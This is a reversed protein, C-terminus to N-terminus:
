SPDTGFIDKYSKGFDDGYLESYQRRFKEYCQVALSHKGAKLLTQCKLIMADEDMEDFVFITNCIDIVLDPQKIADITRAYSWLFDIIRNSVEAKFPDVGEFSIDKLLPGSRVLQIIRDVRTGAATSKSKIIVLYEFYDLYLVEPNFLFKWYKAEHTLQCGDIEELLRRLRIMNVAMTNKASQESRGPWILDHLASDAVGKGDGFSNLLISLYLRTLIPTFSKTVEVGNRNFVRFGGFLLIANQHKEEMQNLLRMRSELSKKDRNIGGDTTKRIKKIYLMILWVCAVFTLFIAILKLFNKVPRDGGKEAEIPAPPFKLTYVSVHIRNDLQQQNVAILTEIDEAYFLDASSVIDYFRFPIPSGVHKYVDESLSAEILQLKDNPKNKSYILGYFHSETKDIVINGAFCFEDDGVLTYELKRTIRGKNLDIAYLDSYGHPNILQDGSASGYGGAIYINNSEKAYGLGALYRPSITDGHFSVTDWRGDILSVRFIDNRYRLQGYGNFLYISNDSYSLFKNHHWYITLPMNSVYKGEWRENIFDFGFLQRRDISYSYLEGGVTDYLVQAGTVMLYEGDSYDIRGVEGSMVNYETIYESCVLYLRNEKPNFAIQAGDPAEDEFILSWVTHLPRLWVPNTVYAERGHIIDRTVNGSTEDLPWYYKEKHNTNIKIDRLKMPPLDTTAYVGYTNMGFLFKYKKADRVGISDILVERGNFKFILLDSKPNFNLEVNNWHDFLSSRDSEVLTETEGEGYVIYFEGAGTRPRYLLDINHDDAIIRLVYGFYDPKEPLFSLDFSLSFDSSFYYYDNFSLDLGSRKEISERQGVLELGFSGQSVATLGVWFFLLAIWFRKM